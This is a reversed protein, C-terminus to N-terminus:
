PTSPPPLPPPLLPHIYIAELHIVHQKGPFSPSPRCHISRSAASYPLKAVRHAESQGSVEQANHQQVACLLIDVSVEAHRLGVAVALCQAEHAVGVLEPEGDHSEHVRRSGESALVSLFQTLSLHPDVGTDCKHILNNKCNMGTHAQPINDPHTGSSFCQILM